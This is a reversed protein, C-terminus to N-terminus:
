YETNKRKLHVMLFLFFRVVVAVIAVKVLILLIGFLYIGTIVESQASPIDM